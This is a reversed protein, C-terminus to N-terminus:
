LASIQRKMAPFGKISRLPRLVRLTRLGKLNAGEIPSLEIVSILVVAFDIWNWMDKLYANRHKVFGMTVVRFACEVMFCISFVFSATELAKNYPFCNDRDNYDYIGLQITNLLILFLILNDFAKHETIM